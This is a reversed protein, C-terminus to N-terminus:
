KAASTKLTTYIPTSILAVALISTIIIEPITYSANYILSYLVPGQDVPASDAFFIVGSLFSMFGRLLISVSVGLIVKTKANTIFRPMCGAIGLSGFALPYDLLVQAWHVMWPEQIFQLLSYAVGAIIGPGTGFVMAYLIIPFMSALTISGGQPMKYLRIYSLIFAIAVCMGGYVIKKTTIQSSTPQTSKTKIIMLGIISLLFITALIGWMLPTIEALKSFINPM